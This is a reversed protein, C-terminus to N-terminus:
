SKVEPRESHEVGDLLNYGVAHKQIPVYENDPGPQEDQGMHVGPMMQSKPLLRGWQKFFFPVGAEDCRDRMSRAWDPHMPRAGPGSEGGCIIWDLAPHTPDDDMTLGRLADLTGVEPYRFAFQEHAQPYDICEFNVPGLMPEVSVLRVAAPTDLLVPIRKDAQEQDEATVGLWWNPRVGDAFWAGVAARMRKPRKTLIQYTHWPARDMSEFVLRLARPSVSEHFLDAMSCVFVMRPKRWRLPKNLASEVLATAGNWRGGTIVRAYEAPAQPNNAHRVAMREAYCNKCGTSIKSCGVIPNWTSETWEISTM